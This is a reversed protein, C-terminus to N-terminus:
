DGIYVVNKLGKFHSDSSILHCNLEKQKALLLADLIGFQPRTKRLTCKIKAADLWTHTLIPLIVSNEKVYTKIQKFDFGNRESVGVLEAICSEMTIFKNKKDGLLNKLMIGKASGEM